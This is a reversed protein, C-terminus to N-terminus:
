EENRQGCTKCCNYDIQTFQNYEAACKDCYMEKCKECEYVETVKKQCQECLVMSKIDQANAEGKTDSIPESNTDSDKVAKMKSTLAAAKKDVELAAEIAANADKIRKTRIAEDVESEHKNKKLIKRMFGPRQQRRKEQIEVETRELDSLPKFGEVIMFQFRDSHRFVAAEIGIYLRLLFPPLYKAVKHAKYDIGWTRLVKWKGGNKFMLELMKTNVATVNEGTQSRVFDGSFGSYREGPFMMFFRGGPKLNKDMEKLIDSFEYKSPAWALGDWLSVIFPYKRNLGMNDLRRKYVQCLNLKLAKIKKNAIAAFEDSDEVGTYKIPDVNEAYLATRCSIDLTDVGRFNRLYGFLIANLAKNIKQKQIGDYQVALLMMAHTLDPKEEKM